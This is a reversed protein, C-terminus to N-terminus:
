ALTNSRWREAFSISLEFDAIVAGPLLREVIRQLEEAGTVVADAWLHQPYIVCFLPLGPMHEARLGHAVGTDGPLPKKSYLNDLAAKAEPVAIIASAERLKAATQWPPKGKSNYGRLIERNRNYCSPCLIGGISRYTPAERCRCCPQRSNPPAAQITSPAKGSHIAGVPCAICQSGDKRAAWNAACHHPQLTARLSQCDFVTLGYPALVRYQVGDARPLPALM